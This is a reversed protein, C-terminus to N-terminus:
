VLTSLTGAASAHFWVLFVCEVLRLGANGLWHLVEPVRFAHDCHHLQSAFAFCMLSRAHTCSLAFMRYAVPVSGSGRKYDCLRVIVCLCGGVYVLM